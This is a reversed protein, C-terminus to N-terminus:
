GGRPGLDPLLTEEEYAIDDYLLEAFNRLERGLVVSPRTLDNLRELIYALLARQELHERQLQEARRAGSASAARIAPILLEDERDLHEVLREHLELGRLRLAGVSQGEGRSVREALEQVTGAIVRLETHEELIRRRIESAAM